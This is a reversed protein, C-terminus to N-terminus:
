IQVESRGKVGGIDAEEKMMGRFKTNGEKEKYICV